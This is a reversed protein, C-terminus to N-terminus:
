YNFDKMHELLAVCYGSILIEDFEIIGIHIADEDIGVVWLDFTNTERDYPLIKLEKM